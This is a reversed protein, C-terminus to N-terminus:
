KKIAELVESLTQRKSVLTCVEGILSSNSNGNQTNVSIEKNKESLDKDIKAIERDLHKIVETIEKM